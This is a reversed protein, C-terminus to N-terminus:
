LNTGDGILGYRIGATGLKGSDADQAKLYYAVFDTSVMLSFSGVDHTHNCCSHANLLNALTQKFIQVTLSILYFCDLVFKCFFILAIM